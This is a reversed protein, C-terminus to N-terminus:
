TLCFQLTFLSYATTPQGSQTMPQGNDSITVVGTPYKPNSLLEEYLNSCTVDEHCHSNDKTELLSVSEFGMETQTGLFKLVIKLNEM